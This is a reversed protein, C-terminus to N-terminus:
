NLSKIKSKMKKFNQARKERKKNLNEIRRKFTFLFTDFDDKEPNWNPLRM